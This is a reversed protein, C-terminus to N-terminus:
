VQSSGSWVRVCAAVRFGPFAFSFSFCELVRAGSSRYPVNKSGVPVRLSGFLTNQTKPVQRSDTGCAARQDQTFLYIDLGSCSCVFVFLCMLLCM